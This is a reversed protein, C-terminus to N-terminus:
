LPLADDDDDDEDNDDDDTVSCESPPEDWFLFMLDLMEFALFM